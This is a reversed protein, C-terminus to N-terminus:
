RGAATFFMPAALREVPALADTLVPVADARTGSNLLPETVAYWTRPPGLTSDLQAPGSYRDSASIVYTLRTPATPPRELWVEVHRFVQSLTRLMSKVLLPDPFVDVVNLLYIGDPALRDKVQRAYEVTTLHYPVAIDHFVDTVVVDFRDRRGALVVRADHHIIEIGQPDFYLMERAVRTVRPDLEAVTVEADPYRHRVARPQTYAGGGAFFFKLATGQVSVLHHRVLEDMLHVYPVLLWDPRERHNTSHVMHDLVLTRAILRKGADHEDIVRICYYNSEVDCPTLFGETRTIAFSILLAGALAGVLAGRAGRRRALFPLALLALLMSAAVVVQKTGYYQVLWYGTLFTGAISGLAALAHMRGVVRGTRLDLRLALTTLLPTIVGLLAAPLFFLTLVFVFSAGLLSMESQQVREAVVLLLYLIAYCCLAAALLVLGAAREGCGRDAMHGGLWNGLSLGALIVGIISTWTYLSVGVYPALLRGAVIELVLLLASSVFIAIGYWVLRATHTAPAPEPSSVQHDM